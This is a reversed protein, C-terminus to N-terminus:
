LLSMLIPPREPPGVDIREGSRLGEMVKLDVAHTIADARARLAGM